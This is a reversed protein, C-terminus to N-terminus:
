DFDGTLMRERREPAFREIAYRLTTRPLRPYNKKLFTLLKAESVKGTERLVWGVAKHILSEKDGLLLKSIRFASDLEGRKILGLTAVIAIRRRWLNDSVALQDLVTQDRRALQAGVIYPASTDVLDWNNAREAHELYFRFIEEKVAEDGHEYQWVLIELACFRVEHMPSQLLRKVEALALDRYRLATRRQAPVAIGLFIDGEAYQGPGTKFFSQSFAAREPNALAELDRVLDKRNAM